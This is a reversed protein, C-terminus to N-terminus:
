PVFNSNRDGGDSGQDISDTLQAQSEGLVLNSPGLHFVVSLLKNTRERCRMRENNFEKWAPVTMFKRLTRHMDGDHPIWKTSRLPSSDTERLMRNGIEVAKDACLPYVFTAALIGDLVRKVGGAPGGLRM